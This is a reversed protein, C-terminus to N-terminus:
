LLLLDLLRSSVLCLSALGLFPSPRHAAGHHQPRLLRAGPARMQSMWHNESVRQEQRPQAQSTMVRVGCHCWLGLALHAPESSSWLPAGRYGASM